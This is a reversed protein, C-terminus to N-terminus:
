RRALRPARPGNVKAGLVRQYELEVRARSARLMLGGRSLDGRGVFDKPFFLREGFIELLVSTYKSSAISGLLVVSEPAHEDDLKKADRVLPKVYRPEEADVPVKAMMALDALRITTDVPVLGAGPVIVLAGAPEAFAQAYAVKGRFYLGSAFSFVDAIPAGHERLRVALPFAAQPRTVYGMRQGACNAPSLLFLRRM